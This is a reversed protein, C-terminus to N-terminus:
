IAWMRFFDPGGRFFDQPRGQLTGQRGPATRPCQVRVAGRSPCQYMTGESGWPCLPYMTGQRGPYVPYMTGPCVPYLAICPYSAKNEGVPNAREKENNEM